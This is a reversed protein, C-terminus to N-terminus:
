QWPVRDVGANLINRVEEPKLRAVDLLIRQHLSRTVRVGYKMRRYLIVRKGHEMRRLGLSVDDFAGGRSRLSLCAKV